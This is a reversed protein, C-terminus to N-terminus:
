QGDQLHVHVRMVERTEVKGYYTEVTITLGGNDKVVKAGYFETATAVFVLKGKM